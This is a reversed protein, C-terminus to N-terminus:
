LAPLPGVPCGKANTILGVVIQEFGKKRDRNYGYTVLESYEYEGEFYTSTIDYLVM